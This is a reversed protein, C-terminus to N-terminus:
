YVAQSLVKNEAEAEITEEDTTGAFAIWRTGAKVAHARFGESDGSLSENARDAITQAHSLVLQQVDDSNLLERFGDSNFVLRAPM